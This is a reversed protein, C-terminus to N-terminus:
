KDFINRDKPIQKDEIEDFRLDLSEDAAPAPPGKRQPPAIPLSKNDQPRENPM